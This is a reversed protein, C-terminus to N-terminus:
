KASDATENPAENSLEESAKHVILSDPTYTPIPAAPVVEVSIPKDAAAPADFFNVKSLGFMMLWSLVLGGIGM